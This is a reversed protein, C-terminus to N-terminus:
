VPIFDITGQFRDVGLVQIQVSQGLRYSKGTIQGVMRYTEPEFNYYDGQLNSVHILGEITNPLEVYIGWSTIGSVLGTYCAGVFGSLYEIQKMREVNREAEDARRELKSAQEAVKPLIRQYHGIRQDDLKGNLNEKIIRHIQLDPYRRIPSTFHCYYKASLGFHGDNSVSYRAQQMSRLLLRSIVPEEPKGMTKELLLQLEKPHIEHGALHLTYGMNQIFANFKKLKERDPEQHVRYLFPLQLWYYEEAVTENALLMFDEIIMSAQNRVYPEVNIPIGREDLTIKSEPFDFDIAGRHGRKKRLLQSLQQMRFFLPVFEQYEERVAPDGDLVAQVGTYTMRRDVCIVGQTIQHGAVAGSEDIEMLCSLTLRDQGQNLSCIGNSLEKPLMPLVRDILYVSTGRELAETDLLSGERVYHSVDAIHVGLQFHGNSLRTLTIADDLDKADEGDITVTQWDRFDMRGAMEGESVFPPVSRGAELVEEPFDVPLEMSRAQALIDVGPEKINGLIETVEGVPNERASGYSSLHVVVKDGHAADMSKGEPIFIDCTIKRNDPIVFGYHRNKEYSGVVQTIGRQLIEVVKGEARKERTAFSLIQLRVQDQHMANGLNEEAIFVDGEMGEVSVFGYGHPNMDLVGSVLMRDAKQYRGRRNMTIRGEAMLQDLAQGLLEREEPAVQLLVALDKRRMPRYGADGMFALITEKKKELGKEEM